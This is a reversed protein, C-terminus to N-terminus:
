RWRMKGFEVLTVIRLSLDSGISTTYARIIPADLAINQPGELKQKIAANPRSGGIGIGIGIGVVVVFVVAIAVAVAVVVPVLLLLLVYTICPGNNPPLGLQISRTSRLCGWM